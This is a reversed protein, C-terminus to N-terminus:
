QKINEFLREALRYLVATHQCNADPDFPKTKSFECLQTAAEIIAEDKEFRRIDALADPLKERWHGTLVWAYDAVFFRGLRRIDIADHNRNLLPWLKGMVDAIGWVAKLFAERRFRAGMRKPPLEILRDLKKEGYVSVYASESFASIGTLIGGGVVRALYQSNVPLVIMEIIPEGRLRPSYPDPHHIVEGFDSFTEDLLKKLM